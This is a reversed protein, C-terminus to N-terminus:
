SCERVLRYTSLTKQGKACRGLLASAPNYYNEAEGKSFRGAQKGFSRSWEGNRDANCSPELKEVDKGVNTITQRKIKIMPTPIFHYRIQMERTALSTLSRKM